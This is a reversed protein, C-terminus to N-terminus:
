LERTDTDAEAPENAVPFTQFHAGRADSQRSAM